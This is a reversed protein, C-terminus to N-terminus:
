VRERCSARGIERLLIQLARSMWPNEAEGSGGAGVHLLNGFHELVEMDFLNFDPCITIWIHALIHLVDLHVKDLHPKGWRKELRLLIELIKHLLAEFPQLVLADEM